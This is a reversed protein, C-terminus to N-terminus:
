EVTRRFWSGHALVGQRGDLGHSALEAEGPSL